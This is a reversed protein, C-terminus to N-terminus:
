CGGVVRKAKTQQPGSAAMKLKYDQILVHLVQAAKTRFRYTDREHQNSAIEPMTFNLINKKFQKLGGKLFYIESYGLENALVAAKKEVVEDDAVFVNKKHKITLLKHADKEFLNELNFHTSNPLSMADFDKKSRLDIIQLNKDKDMINFALEDCDMADLAYSNVFRSDNIEALLSQRREPLAFASLALILALGTLGYYLSKSNFEPNSKGNVKNEILTVAWFAGVAVVTLLFAFLSQPM